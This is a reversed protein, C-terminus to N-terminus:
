VPTDSTSRRLRAIASVLPFAPVILVIGALYTMAGTVQAAVVSAAAAVLSLVMLALLVPRSRARRRRQDPFLAVVNAIAADALLEDATERLVREDNM